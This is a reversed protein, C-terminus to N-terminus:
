DLSSCPSGCTMGICYLSCSVPCRYSPHSSHILSCSAAGISITCPLSLPLVFSHISSPSTGVSVLTHCDSSSQSARPRNCVLDGLVDLGCEEVQDGAMGECAHVSEFKFLWVEGRGCLLLNCTCTTCHRLVSLM